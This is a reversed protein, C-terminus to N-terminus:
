SERRRSRVRARALGGCAILLVGYFSPEPVVATSPTVTASYTATADQADM